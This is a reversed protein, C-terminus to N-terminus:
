CSASGLHHQDSSLGEVPGMLPLMKGEVGDNGLQAANAGSHPSRRHMWVAM